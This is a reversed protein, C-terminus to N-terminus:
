NPDPLIYPKRYKNLRFRMTNIQLASIIEHNSYNPLNSEYVVFQIDRGFKHADLHHSFLQLFGAEHTHGSGCSAATRWRWACGARPPQISLHPLVRRVARRAASSPGDVACSTCTPRPTISSVMTWLWNQRLNQKKVKSPSGEGLRIYRLMHAHSKIWGTDRPTISDYVHM